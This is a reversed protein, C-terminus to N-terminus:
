LTDVDGVHEALRDLCGTWGHEHGDRTREDSIREHLVIVETQGPARPEFRVTVREPRGAGPEIQWSYVLLRSREVAEFVGHIILITGDELANELRYSGGVRLDVEAGVCRVRHPGWWSLLQQPTTWAAFLREPSARILRRAVLVLGDASGGSPASM